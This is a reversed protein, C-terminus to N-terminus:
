EDSNKENVCYRCKEEVDNWCCSGVMAFCQPCETVHDYSMMECGCGGCLELEMEDGCDTCVTMEDSM